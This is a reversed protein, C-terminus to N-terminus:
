FSNKLFQQCNDLAHRKMEFDAISRDVPYISIEGSFVKSRYGFRLFTTDGSQIDVKLTLRRTAKVEHQGSALDYRVYRIIASVVLRRVISSSQIDGM